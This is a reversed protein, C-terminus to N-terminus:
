RKLGPVGNAPVISSDSPTNRSITGPKFRYCAQEHGGVEFAMTFHAIEHAASDAFWRRKRRPDAFAAIVQSLPAPLAREITFTDFQVSHQTMM